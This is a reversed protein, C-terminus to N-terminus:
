QSCKKIHDLYNTEYGDSDIDTENFTEMDDQFYGWLSQVVCQSTTVPGTFPSSLPAFCIDKLSNDEEM